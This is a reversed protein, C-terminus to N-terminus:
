YAFILKPYKERKREREMSVTEELIKTFSESASLGEMMEEDVEGKVERNVGNVVGVGIVDDHHRLIPSSKSTLSEQEMMEEHWSPANPRYPTSSLPQKSRVRGLRLQTQLDSNESKLEDRTQKVEELTQSLEQTHSHTYSHQMYSLSLSLSLIPPNTM